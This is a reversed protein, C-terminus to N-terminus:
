EDWLEMGPPLRQKPEWLYRELEIKEQANFEVGEKELLIQQLTPEHEPKTMGRPSIRGQSNMVRQWPIRRDPPTHRLAYGVARAGSPKGLLAAIQGYTMVRGKPIQAVLDYVAEYFDDM